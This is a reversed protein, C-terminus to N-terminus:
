GMLFEAYPVRWVQEHALRHGIYGDEGYTTGHDSTFICLWKRRALIPMVAGLAKDVAALAAAQTDPTDKTAGDMYHCNPQHLASLNLFMFLRQDDPIQASRKAAYGLQNDPSEIDTVGFEPRWISEDFMDPLM